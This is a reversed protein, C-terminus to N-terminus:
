KKLDIDPLSDQIFKVQKVSEGGYIHSDSSIPTISDKFLATNETTNWELEGDTTVAIYYKNDKVSSFTNGVGQFVYGHIILSKTKEHWLVDNDDMDFVIRLINTTNEETFLRNGGDRFPAKACPFTKTTIVAAM